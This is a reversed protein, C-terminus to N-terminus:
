WTLTTRAETCNCFLVLTRAGAPRIRCHQDPGRGFTQVQVGEGIGFRKDGYAIRSSIALRQSERGRHQRHDVVPGTPMAPDEDPALMREM